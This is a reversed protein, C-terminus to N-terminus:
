PPSLEVAVVDLELEAEPEPPPPTVLHVPSASQAPSGPPDTHSTAVPSHTPHRGALSMHGAPSNQSGFDLVHLAPQVSAVSQASGAAGCQSVEFFVHTSHRCSLSHMAPVMQM